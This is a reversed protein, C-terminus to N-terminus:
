LKLLWTCALRKSFSHLRIAMQISKDPDIKELVNIALFTKNAYNYYNIYWCDCICCM